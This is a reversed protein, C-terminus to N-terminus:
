KKITFALTKFMTGSFGPDAEKAHYSVVLVYRGPKLKPFMWKGKLQLNVTFSTRAQITMRSPTLSNPGNDAEDQEISGNVGILHMKWLSRLNTNLIAKPNAVQIAKSGKNHLILKLSGASGKQQLSISLTSRLDKPKKSNKRWKKVYTRFVKFVGKRKTPYLFVEALAIRKLESVSLRSIWTSSRHTAWPFYCPHQFLIKSGVAIKKRLKNRKLAKVKAEVLCIGSDGKPSKVSAVSIMAQVSAGDLYVKEKNVAGAVSSFVFFACLVSLKISWNIQIKM